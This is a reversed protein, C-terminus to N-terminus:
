LSLQLLRHPSSSCIARNTCYIFFTEPYEKYSFLTYVDMSPTLLPLTHSRGESPGNQNNIVLRTDNARQRPEQAPIAVSHLRGGIPAVGEGPELRLAIVDNQRIKVHRLKVPSRQVGAQPLCITGQV